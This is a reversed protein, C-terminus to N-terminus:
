VRLSGELRFLSHLIIVIERDLSSARFWALLSQRGQFSARTGVTFHVLVVELGPVQSIDVLLVLQHSLYGLERRTEVVHSDLPTM